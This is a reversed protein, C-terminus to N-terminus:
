APTVQEGTEKEKYDTPTFYGVEGQGGEGSWKGEIDGGASARKKEPQRV